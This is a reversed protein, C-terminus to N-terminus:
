SIEESLRIVFDNVFLIFFLDRNHSVSKAGCRRYCHFIHLLLYVKTAEEKWNRKEKMEWKKHRCNKRENRKKMMEESKNRFWNKKKRERERKDCLTRGRTWMSMWKPESQKADWRAFFFFYAVCFIDIFIFDIVFQM